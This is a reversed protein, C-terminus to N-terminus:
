KRSGLSQEIKPANERRRGMIEMFLECATDHITSRM